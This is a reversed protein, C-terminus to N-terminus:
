LVLQQHTTPTNIKWNKTAGRARQSDRSLYDRKEGDTVSYIKKTRPGISVVRDGLQNSRDRHFKTKPPLM